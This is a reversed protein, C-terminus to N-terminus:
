HSQLESTHEESRKRAASAPLSELESLKERIADRILTAPSRQTDSWLDVYIVIAGLDELAPILDNILFTTKGIRRLGSLFLGSRLGEDLVSPYLLQRAMQRALAPRKYVYSM